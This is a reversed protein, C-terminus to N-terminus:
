PGQKIRPTPLVRRGRFAGTELCIAPLWGLALFSSATPCPPPLQGTRPLTPCTWLCLFCGTLQPKVPWPTRLCSMFTCLPSQLVGHPCIPLFNESAIGLLQLHVSCRPLQPTLRMKSLDDQSGLSLALASWASSVQDWSIPVPFLGWIRAQSDREQRDLLFSSRCVFSYTMLLHNARLHLSPPLIMGLVHWVGM